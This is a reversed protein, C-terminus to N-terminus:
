LESTVDDAHCVYDRIRTFCGTLFPIFEDQYISRIKVMSEGDGEIANEIAVLKRRFQQELPDIMQPPCFSLTEKLIQTISNTLLIFAPVSRLQSSENATTRGLSGIFLAISKDLPKSALQVGRSVLNEFIFPMFSVSFSGFSGELVALENWFSTLDLLEQTQSVAEVVIELFWGVRRGLMGSIPGIESTVAAYQTLVALVPGKMVLCARRFSEKPGCGVPDNKLIFDTIFVERCQIFVSPLTNAPIMGDHTSQEQLYSYLRLAVPLSVDSRLMKLVKANVAKRRQIKEKRSAESYLSLSDVFPKWSNHKFSDPRIDNRIEETLDAIKGIREISETIAHQAEALAGFCKFIDTLSEKTFGDREGEMEGLEGKLRAYSRPSGMQVLEGKRGPDLFIKQHNKGVTRKQM